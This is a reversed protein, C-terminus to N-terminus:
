SMHAASERVPLCQRRHIRMRAARENWDSECQAGHEVAERFHALASDPVFFAMGVANTMGQGLPGTTVEVGPTHGGPNYKLFQMQLVYAM